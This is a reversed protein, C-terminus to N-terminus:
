SRSLSRQKRGHRPNACGYPVGLLYLLTTSMCGWRPPSTRSFLETTADLCTRTAPRNKVCQNAMLTVVGGAFQTSQPPMRPPFSSIPDRDVSASRCTYVRTASHWEDVGAAPAVRFIGTVVCLSEANSWHPSTRGRVEVNNPLYAVENPTSPCFRWSQTRIRRDCNVTLSVLSAM